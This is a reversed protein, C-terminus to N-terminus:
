VILSRILTRLQRDANWIRKNQETKQVNLFIMQMYIMSSILLM